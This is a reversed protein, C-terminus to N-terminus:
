EKRGFEGSPERLQPHVPNDLSLSGDSQVTPTQGFLKQSQLLAYLNPTCWCNSLLPTYTVSRWCPLELLVAAPNPFM